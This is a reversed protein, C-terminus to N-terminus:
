ETHSTITKENVDNQTKNKQPEGIYKNNKIWATYIEKVFDMPVCLTLGSNERTTSVISPPNTQHTYLNDSYTLYSSIVGLLYANPVSKTGTLAISTPKLFVPGGSNGPFISSDILFAKNQTIIEHDIRSVLGSKVCPYNQIEGAIGMPFGIVFLSDGAAIGIENFQNFYAFMDDTVFMPNIKNEVLVNANVNMVALDINPDHHSLWINEGTDLILNQDFIKVSEDTSNFRLSVKEKKDFVHRNTILFLQYLKEQPNTDDNIAFGVLFGSAECVFVGSPDRHGIAVLSQINHQALLAM